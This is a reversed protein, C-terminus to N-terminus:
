LPINGHKRKPGEQHKGSLAALHMLLLQRTQAPEIVDDVYGLSAAVRPNAFKDIYENECEVGKAAIAAADGGAEKVKEIDKRFVINVAGKPGM